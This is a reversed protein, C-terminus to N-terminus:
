LAQIGASQRSGASLNTNELDSTAGRGSSGLLLFLLTMSLAFGKDEFPLGLFGVAVIILAFSRAAVQEPLRKEDGKRVRWAAYFMMAVAVMLVISGLIGFKALILLPSDLQFDAPAQMANPNPFAHGFGVGFLPNSQQWAQVTIQLAEQRIAGSADSSLGNTFVSMLASARGTLFGSVAVLSAVAPLVFYLAAALGGAGFFVRSLPVLGRKRAGVIGLFGVILLLGTRTGTVLIAILCATGISLWLLNKRALGYGIGLSFGFATLVMSFMIFRDIGLTGVGRAALWFAAFGAAGMLVFAGATLRARQLSAVRSADAGIFPAAGAMLYTTADRIVRSAEEGAAISAVAVATAFLLLLGAGRFAPRMASRVSEDLKRINGISAFACALLFALYAPKASALAGTDSQMIILAGGVFAILRFHPSILSLIVAVLAVLGLALAPGLALNVRVACIVGIAICVVFATGVWVSLNTLRSSM